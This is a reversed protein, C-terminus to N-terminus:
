LKNKIEELVVVIKMLWYTIWISAALVAIGTM